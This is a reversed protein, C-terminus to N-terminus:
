ECHICGQVRAPGPATRPQAARVLAYRIQLRNGSRRKAGFVFRLSPAGTHVAAVRLMYLNGGGPKVRLSGAAHWQSARALGAAAPLALALGAGAAQPTLGAVAPPAVQGAGAPEADGAFPVLAQGDGPGAGLLNSVAGRLFGGLARGWEPM